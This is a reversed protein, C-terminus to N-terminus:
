REAQATMLRMSFYYSLSSILAAIGNGNAPDDFMPMEPGSVPNIICVEDALAFTDYWGDHNENYHMFRVILYQDPRLTVDIPKEWKLYFLRGIPFGLFSVDRKSLEFADSPAYGPLGQTVPDKPILNSHSPKTGSAIEIRALVFAVNFFNDFSLSGAPRIGRLSYVKSQDREFRVKYYLHYPLRPYNGQSIASAPYNSMARSWQGPGAVAGRVGQGSALYGSSWHDTNNFRYRPVLMNLIGYTDTRRPVTYNSPGSEIKVPPSQAGDYVVYSFPNSQSDSGRQVVHSMGPIQFELNLFLHSTIAFKKMDVPDGEFIFSATEVRYRDYNFIFDEPLMKDRAVTEVGMSITFNITENNELYSFTQNGTWVIPPDAHVAQSHGFLGSFILLLVVSFYKM